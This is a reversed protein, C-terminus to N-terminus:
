LIVMPKTLQQRANVDNRKLNFKKNFNQNLNEEGQFSKITIMILSSKKILIFITLINKIPITPIYIKSYNYEYITNV